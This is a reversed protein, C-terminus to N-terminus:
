CVFTQGRHLIELSFSLLGRNKVYSYCLTRTYSGNVSWTFVSRSLDALELGNLKEESIYDAVNNSM